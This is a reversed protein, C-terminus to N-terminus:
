LVEVHKMWAEIDGASVRWHTNYRESDDSGYMMAREGVDVYHLARFM